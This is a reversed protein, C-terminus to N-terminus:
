TCVVLTLSLEDLSGRLSVASCDEQLTSLKAFKLRNRASSTAERLPSCSKFPDTTSEIVGLSTAARSSSTMALSTANNSESCPNRISTKSVVWHRVSGLGYGGGHGGEDREDIGGNCRRRQGHHKLSLPDSWRPIIKTALMWGLSSDIMAGLAQLLPNTRSPLEAASCDEDSVLAECVAVCGNRYQAKRIWRNKSLM